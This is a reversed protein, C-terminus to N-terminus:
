DEKSIRKLEKSQKKWLFFFFAFIPVLAIIIWNDNICEVKFCFMNPLDVESVRGNGEYDVAKVYIRENIHQNNLVYPSQIDSFIKKGELVEYTKVGDGKDHAEFVLTYKGDNINKDKILSVKFIEPPDSDMSTIKTNTEGYGLNRVPFNYSSDELNEQSGLGDNKFLSINDLGISINTATKPVLIVQFVNGEGKYGGAIIGSFNIINSKSRNPNELWASIISNGTIIQRIEVNDSVILDGSVANYFDDETSINVDFKVEDGVKIDKDPSSFSIEAAFATPVYFLMMITIAFFYKM